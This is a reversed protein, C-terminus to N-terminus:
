PSRVVVPVAGAAERAATDPEALAMVDTLIIDVIV